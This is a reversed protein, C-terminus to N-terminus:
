LSGEMRRLEKALRERARFIRSEVTGQAINLIRAIDRYSLGELERLIKVEKFKPSLRDLCARVIKRRETQSAVESPAQQQEDPANLDGRDDTVLALPQHRTQRVVKRRHDLLTNLAVQYLWTSLKAEGRFTDIRRQVKLFVEQVGDEAEQPDLGCRLALGYVKPAFEQFLSDLRDVQSAAPLQDLRPKSRNM